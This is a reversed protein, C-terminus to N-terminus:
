INVEDDSSLTGVQINPDNTKNIISEYKTKVNIYNPLISNDMKYFPLIRFNRFGATRETYVLDGKVNDVSINTVGDEVVKHIDVSAIM